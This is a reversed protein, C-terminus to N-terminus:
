TPKIDQNIFNLSLCNSEGLKKIMWCNSGYFKELVFKANLITMKTAKTSSSSTKADVEGKKKSNAEEREM